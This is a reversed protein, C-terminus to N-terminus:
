SRKKKKRKQGKTTMLAVAAVSIAAVILFGAILLPDVVTQGTTIDLQALSLMNLFALHDVAYGFIGLGVPVLVLAPYSTLAHPSVRGVVFLLVVGGIFLITATVLGYVWLIAYAIMFFVGVGILAIGLIIPKTMLDMLSSAAKETM